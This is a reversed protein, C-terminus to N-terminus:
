RKSLGEVSLLSTMMDGSERKMMIQRIMAGSQGGPGSGLVSEGLMRLKMPMEADGYWDILDMKTVKKQLSHWSSGLGYQVCEDIKAATWWPPLLGPKTAAKDLFRRFGVSSDKARTYITNPEARGALNFDDECRFRFADLLLDFVEEEARDHLWTGLELRTFPKAVDAKARKPSFSNEGSSSDGRASTSTSAPISPEGGQTVCAKKHTKWDAKQCDRSCYRATLCKACKMLTVESASKHCSHCTTM